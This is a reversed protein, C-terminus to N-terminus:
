PAVPALVAKCKQLLNLAEMLSGADLAPTPLVTEPAQKLFLEPCTKILQAIQHAQTRTKAFGRAVLAREFEVITSPAGKLEVSAEATQEQYHELAAIAGSKVTPSLDTHPIRSLAASVAGDTVQLKGDIIDAVLLKYSCELDPNADDSVLFAKTLIEYNVKDTGFAAAKLVRAKAAAADWTTSTSVPLNKSVGVKWTHKKADAFILQDDDQTDGLRAKVFTMQAEENGPFLVISIEFLDGRDIRLFYEDEDDERIVVEYDQLMFGVSFNAGGMMKLMRWRDKVYSVELDLQAEMWLKDRRYELVKIVGAPKQWDHDLLLKIGRPGVLGRDDMAAQFAGGVVEHNYHDRGATSAWGAVYGEPTDVGIAKRIEEDTAPSFQLAVNLNGGRKIPSHKVMLDPAAKTIIQGHKALLKNM